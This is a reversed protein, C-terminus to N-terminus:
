GGGLAAGAHSPDLALPRAGLHGHPPQNVAHAVAIPRMAGLQGSPGVQHEGAALVRDEDVATRADADRDARRNLGM